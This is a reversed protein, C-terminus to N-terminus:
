NQTIKRISRTQELIQEVDEASLREVYNIKIEELLDVLLTEIQNLSQRAKIESVFSQNVNTFLSELLQEFKKDEELVAKLAAAFGSYTQSVLQKTLSSVATKGGPLFSVGQYAPSQQIAKQLSYQLLAEAEPQIKPLVRDVMTNAFIKIIEATENTNNIDIYGNQNREALLNSIDGQRISIQLQNIIRIVVVETIDEAIGAVIGQSIQKQIRNGINLPLLRSRQLRVSTPIVRLWRWFPLFFFVDYWRWLMADIWSVGTRTRSILWTRALFELAFIAGFPFDLFGFNDVYGGTEGIHRYYNTEILPKIEDNFFALKATTNNQLYNVSWFQWFAQKSSQEENPLYERMINKLRELNGSKGAEEFADNQIMEVSRRRLDSLIPIIEPDNIKTTELKQELEAVKSLYKETTRNPVIGKVNDYQLIFQSIDDPIIDLKIGPISVYASRLNGLRIQGHLWFDRIPVYSLDFIVLLLNIVAIIAMIKEFWLNPRSKQFKVGSSKRVITM